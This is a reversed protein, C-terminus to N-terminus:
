LKGDVDGGSRPSYRYLWSCLTQYNIGMEQAVVRHNEGSRVRQMATLKIEATYVCRQNSPGRPIPRCQTPLGLVDLIEERSALYLDMLIRVQKRKDAADRYQCRIDSKDQENLM